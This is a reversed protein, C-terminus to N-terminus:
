GGAAELLTPAYDINQVLGSTVTGAPIHGPWQMLLPVRSSVEDMWRKDFWGNEGLFFGQDSTYVVLTNEMLGNTELYDLVRGIERDMGKITALYTKIYRQYKWRIEQEASLGAASFEANGRAFAAEWLKAQEPNLYKAM